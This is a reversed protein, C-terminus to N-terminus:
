FNSSHYKPGITAIGGASVSYNGLYFRENASTIFYGLEDTEAIEAWQYFVNRAVRAFCGYPLQMYPVAAAKYNNIHLLEARSLLWTRQLNDICCIVDGDSTSERHWSVIIFPADKVEIAIKEVPTKLYFQGDERCLVSAFLKIM